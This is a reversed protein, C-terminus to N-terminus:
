FSKEDIKTFIGTNDKWEHTTYRCDECANEFNSQYHNYIHHTPGLHTDKNVM